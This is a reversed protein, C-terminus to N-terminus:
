DVPTPLPAAPMRPPATSWLLAVEEPTLAYADNVLDALRRELPGAEAALARAPAVTRDYEEDLMKRAALSLPKAKGRAKKVENAFAGWDLGAPERLKLSPTDVEYEVALWHRIDRNTQQVSKTIEILRSVGQEVESRVEVTPAAIPLSEMLYGMPSLAEDKLHPLYRWNNWWILPSNLVGLLYLDCTPIFFTKDNGLYSGSDLCYSPHFQIVQYSIKARTFKEWYEVSDQIEYWLYRGPKRGAWSRGEWDRPKPELRERYASLHRKISPYADIDIGRRTFIMWLGAWDPSWREIDQGRLYPKIIADAELDEAILADRTPTDILFAENFGTKVGYYPKVGAFEALPVGRDRIKTLLNSVAKPELSWADAGLRSRDIEVGEAAIQAALDTVRLQDRPIACVNASTPSPGADPKRAVLISPFVDADPFIQKAHGFDVVSEVWADTAFVGRLPGAYGAKLWKNTVVYSLRGGPRLLRLGLEFFYVYLDAVGHYTRYHEKLHPKYSAIWEQRVYPPNGVVVDFGGRDLVEPFASAWDFARPHASPDSVVSNGVRISGDLSTLAKDHRATKIWLSLKCIQVAEENLDVGFLNHQLIYRDLDLLPRGAGLAELHDNSRQFAQYLHEFAEVLFAGSGCSPDLVRISALEEDQWAEWFRVLALRRPRSMTGLDYATPDDLAVRVAGPAAESHRVRLAEFREDLM